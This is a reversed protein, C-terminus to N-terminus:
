QEILNITVGQWQRVGGVMYWASMSIDGTYVTITRETGQPDPYRLIHFVRSELNNIIAELAPGSIIEYEISIARKVAIIEKSMRGSASRNARSIIHRGIDLKQPEAILTGNLWIV